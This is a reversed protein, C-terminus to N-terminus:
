HNTNNQIRSTSSEFRLVSVLWKSQAKQNNGETGRLWHWSLVKFPAMVAEKWMWELINNVLEDVM